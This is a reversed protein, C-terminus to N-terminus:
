PSGRWGDRLRTKWHIAQLGLGEDAGHNRCGSTWGCGGMMERRLMATHYGVRGIGAEGGFFFFGSARRVAADGGVPGDQRACPPREIGDRQVPVASILM